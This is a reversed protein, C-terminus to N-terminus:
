RGLLRAGAEVGLLITGTGLFLAIPLSDSGRDSFQGIMALVIAAFLLAIGGITRARSYNERPNTAM